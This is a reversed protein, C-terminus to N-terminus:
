LVSLASLASLEPPWESEIRRQIPRVSAVDGAGGGGRQWGGGRPQIFGVARDEGAREDAGIVFGEGIGGRMVTVGHASFARPVQGVESGVYRKGLVVRHAHSRHLYQGAVGIRHERDIATHDGGVLVSVLDDGRAIWQGVKGLRASAWVEAGADHFASRDSGGAGFEHM